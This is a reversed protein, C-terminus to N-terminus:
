FDTLGIELDMTPIGELGFGANGLDIEFGTELDEDEEQEPEKPTLDLYTENPTKM